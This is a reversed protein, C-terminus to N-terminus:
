DILLDFSTVALSVYIQVQLLGAIAAIYFDVFFLL